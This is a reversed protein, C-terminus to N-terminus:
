MLYHNDQQQKQKAFDKQLHLILYDMGLRDNQRDLKGLILRLIEPLPVSKKCQQNLFDWGILIITMGM